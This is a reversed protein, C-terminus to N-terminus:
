KMVPVGNSWLPVHVVLQASPTGEHDLSMFSVSSPSALGFDAAKVNPMTIMLHPHWAGVRRGDRQPSSFLVQKPSMMYIVAPMAPTKLEGSAFARTVARQVDDESKGEARLRLEMLERQMSTRASERDFCMPYLSGEHLDRSVMCAAGNTGDHVKAPGKATLVYLDARDAVEAPAASKALAMEEAQPLPTPRVPYGPAPQADAATAVGSLLVFLLLPLNNSRM